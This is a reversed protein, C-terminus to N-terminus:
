ASNPMVCVAPLNIDGPMEHADEGLELDLLQTVFGVLSMRFALDFRQVSGDFIVELGLGGEAAEVGDLLQVRGEPGPGLHDVVFAHM